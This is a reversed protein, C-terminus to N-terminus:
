TYRSLRGNQTMVGMIRVGRAMCQLFLDTVPRDVSVLYEKEHGNEARLLENVIGVQGLQERRASTEDETM